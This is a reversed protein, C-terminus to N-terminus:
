TLTSALHASLELLHIQSLLLLLRQSTNAFFCFAPHLRNQRFFLPIHHLLAPLTPLILTLLQPHPLGLRSLGLLM